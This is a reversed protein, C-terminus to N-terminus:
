PKSWIETNYIEDHCSVAIPKVGVNKLFFMKGPDAEKEKFVYWAPKNRQPFEQFYQARQILLWRLFVENEALNLGFILLPKNFVIHLWTRAGRWNKENKGDFLRDETNHLWGRARTVLGMYDTLGLRISRKYDKMGNIHWIGFDSCPDCFQRNGYYTEWPYYDTLSKKSTRFMDCNGAKTLTNEFNTTLLPCKYKKAWNVIRKHHNHPKWADMHNCFEQQLSFKSRSAKHNLNLLDYFETLAIGEPPKMDLYKKGMKGVIDNWSSSSPDARFRNIGNGIILAINSSNKKLLDQIKM